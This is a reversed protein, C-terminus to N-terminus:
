PLIHGLSVETKDDEEEPEENYSSSMNLTTHSQQESNRSTTAADANAALLDMAEDFEANFSNDLHDPLICFSCLLVFSVFGHPVQFVM